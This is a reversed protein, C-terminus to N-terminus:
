ACKGYQEGIRSEFTEILIQNTRSIKAGSSHMREANGLWSLYADAISAISMRGANMLNRFKGAKRRMRIFPVAPSHVLIRGSPKMRYKQKLFVFERDLRCIRTKRPNIFIKLEKAKANIEPVVKNFLFDRDIHVAYLDDMYRGYGKIGFRCKCLNDIPTPLWVGLIQSIQSGIGLSRELIISGNQLAGEKIKKRHLMSDFPADPDIGYSVDYSFSHIMKAILLFYPQLEPFAKLRELVIQHDINDFYKSFDMLLIWGKSGYKRAHRQLHVMLRKRTFDVGKGELSAGNDYILKPRLAPILVTDCLWRQVVRDRICMARIPRVKGRESHVFETFPAQAYTGNELEEKLQILNEMLRSEFRQTSSKWASGEKTKQFAALLDNIDAKFM